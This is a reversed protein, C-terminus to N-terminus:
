RRSPMQMRRDLVYGRAGAMYLVYDKHCFSREVAINLTGGKQPYANGELSSANEIVIQKGRTYWHCKTLSMEISSVQVHEPISFVIGADIEPAILKSM